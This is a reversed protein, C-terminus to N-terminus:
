RPLIRADRGQPVGFRPEVKGGIEIKTGRRFFLRRGEGQSAVALVEHSVRDTVVTAEVLDGVALIGQFLPVMTVVDVARGDIVKEQVNTAIAPERDKYYVYEGIFHRSGGEISIFEEPNPMDCRIRCGGLVKDLYM